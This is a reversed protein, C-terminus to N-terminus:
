GATPPGQAPSNVRQAMASRAGWWFGTFLAPAIVLAALAGLLGLMGFSVAVGMRALDTRPTAVSDRALGLTDEALRQAVRANMQLTPTGARIVDWFSALASDDGVRARAGLTSDLRAAATLARLRGRTDYRISSRTSTQLRSLGVQAAAFGGVICVLWVLVVGTGPVAAIRQTLNV